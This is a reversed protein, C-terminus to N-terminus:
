VTGDRLYADLLQRIERRAGSDKAAGIVAQGEWRDFWVGHEACVDVSCKAPGLPVIEMRQKCAPCSLEGGRPTRRPPALSAAEALKSLDTDDEDFMRRVASIGALMGGCKL